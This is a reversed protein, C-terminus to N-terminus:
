HTEIKSFIKYLIKKKWLEAINDILRCVCHQTVIFLSQYLHSVHGPSWAEHTTQKFNIDILQVDWIDRNQTFERSCFRWPVSLLRLVSCAADLGLNFSLDAALVIQLIDLFYETNSMYRILVKLLLHLYRSQHSNLYPYNYSLSIYYIIVSSYQCHCISFFNHFSRYAHVSM